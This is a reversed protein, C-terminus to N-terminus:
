EYHGYWTRFATKPIDKIAIHIQHYGSKLDLKSFVKAGGLQDLLDNIRLLPYRNKIMIQNLARYDVCMRWSRDKKRILLIPAGYPSHSPWIKNHELLEAIQENVENLQMLSM